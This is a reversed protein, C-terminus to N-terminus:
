ERFPYDAVPDAVVAPGADRRLVKGAQDVLVLCPLKTAGLRDALAERREDEEYPVAPWPMKRHYAKFSAEDGDSSVFIVEFSKGAELLAERAQRLLPTFRQCPGCWSASFYLGIVTHQGVLEATKAQEGSGQASVLVEGILNALGSAVPTKPTCSVHDCVVPPLDTAPLSDPPPWEEDPRPPHFGVRLKRKGKKGPAQMAISGSAAKDIARQAAKLNEMEVLASGYFLGTDRDTLWRLGVVGGEISLLSMELQKKTVTYPLNGVFLRTSSSKEKAMKKGRAQAPATENRTRKGSSNKFVVGPLAVQKMGAYGEECLKCVMAGHAEAM